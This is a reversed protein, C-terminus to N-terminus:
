CGGVERLLQSIAQRRRLHEDLGGFAVLEESGEDCQEPAGDAQGDAARRLRDEEEFMSDGFM